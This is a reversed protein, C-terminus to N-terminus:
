KLWEISEITIPYGDTLSAELIADGIADNESNGRGVLEHTKDWARCYNSGRGAPIITLNLNMADGEHFGNSVAHGDKGDYSCCNTERWRNSVFCGFEDCDSKENSRRANRQERQKTTRQKM